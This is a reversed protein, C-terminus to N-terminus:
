HHERAARKGSRELLFRAAELETQGPVPPPVGSPVSLASLAGGEGWHHPMPDPPANRRGYCPGAEIENVDM